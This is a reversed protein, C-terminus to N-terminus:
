GWGASVAGGDHARPHGLTVRRQIRQGKPGTRVRTTWARSDRETVVLELGRELIDVLVTRGTKPSKLNQVLKETLKVRM